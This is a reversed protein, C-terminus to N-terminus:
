PCFPMEICSRLAGHARTHTARNGVDSQGEYIANLPPPWLDEPILSAAKLDLRELKGPPGRKKKEKKINNKKNQATGYFM